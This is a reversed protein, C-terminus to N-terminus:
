PKQKRSKRQTSRKGGRRKKETNPNKRYFTSKYSKIFKRVEPVSYAPNAPGKGSLDKLDSLAPYKKLLLKIIEFAIRGSYSNLGYLSISMVAQHLCTKGKSDPKSVIINPDSLLKKVLVINNKSVANILPTM